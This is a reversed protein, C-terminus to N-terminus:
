MNRTDCSCLLQPMTMDIEEVGAIEMGSMTWVEEEVIRKAEVGNGAIVFNEFTDEKYEGSYWCTVKFLKM